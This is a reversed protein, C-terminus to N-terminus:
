AEASREDAAVRLLKSVVPPPNRRQGKRMRDGQELWDALYLTVAEKNHRYYTITAYIQELTLSPYCAAIADPSKSQHIFDYLVTEIGVRTGKIRIDNPALFDFYDEFVMSFVKISLSPRRASTQRSKCRQRYLSNWSRVHSMFGVLRM